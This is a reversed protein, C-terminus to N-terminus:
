RRPAPRFPRREAAVGYGGLRHDAGQNAVEVVLEEAVVAAVQFSRQRWPASSFSISAWPSM